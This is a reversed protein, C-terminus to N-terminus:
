ENGFQSPPYTTANMSCGPLLRLRCQRKPDTLIERLEWWDEFMLFTGGNSKKVGSIAELGKTSLSSGPVLAATLQKELVQCLHFLTLREKWLSSSYFKRQRSLTGKAQADLGFTLKSEKKLDGTQARFIFKGAPLKLASVDSPKKVNGTPSLKLYRYFAGGEVVQGPAGIVQLYIPVDGAADTRVEIRPSRSGQPKVSSYLVKAAKAPVSPVKPVAEQPNIESVDSENEQNDALNDSPAEPQVIAPAPAPVPVPAVMMTKAGEVPPAAPRAALAPVPAASPISVAVPEHVENAGPLSASQVAPALEIMKQMLDSLATPSHLNAFRSVVVVSGALVVM